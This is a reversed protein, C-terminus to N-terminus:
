RPWGRIRGKKRTKMKVKVGKRRKFVRVPFRCFFRLWAWTIGPWQPGWVRLWEVVLTPLARVPPEYNIDRHKFYQMRKGDWEVSMEPKYRITSLRPLYQQIRHLQPEVLYNENDIVLNLWAHGEGYRGSLGVVFRCRYGLDIFQRWTWLAYDECDGARTDEFRDPPLWYDDEGFQERDSIYRCTSLFSRIDSIDSCKIKLPSAVFRAMPFTPRFIPISRRVPIKTKTGDFDYAEPFIRGIMDRRSRDPVYTVFFDLYM